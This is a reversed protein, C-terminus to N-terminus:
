WASNYHQWFVLEYQISFRVSSLVKSIKTVYTKQIKKKLKLIWQCKNSDFRLAARWGTLPMEVFGAVIREGDNVMAWRKLKSNLFSPRLIRWASRPRCRVCTSTEVHKLCRRVTPHDQSSLSFVWTPVLHFGAIPDIPETSSLNQSSCDMSGVFLKWVADFLVWGIVM